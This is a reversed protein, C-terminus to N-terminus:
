FGKFPKSLGEFAKLSGYLRVLLIRQQLAAGRPVLIVGSSFPFISVLGQLTKRTKSFAELPRFKNLSRVAKYPGLQSQAAM